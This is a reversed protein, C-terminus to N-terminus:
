EAAEAGQVARRCRLVAAELAAVARLVSHRYWCGKEAHKALMRSIVEAEDALSWRVERLERPLDLKEGPAGRYYQLVDIRWLMEEFALEVADKREGTRAYRAREDLWTEATTAVGELAAFQEATMDFPDSM